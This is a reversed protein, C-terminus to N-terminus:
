LYLSSTGASQLSAPRMLQLRLAHTIMHNSYGRSRARDLSRRIEAMQAQRLVADLRKHAYRFPRKSHQM